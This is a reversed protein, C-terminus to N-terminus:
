ACRRRVDRAHNAPVRMKAVARLRGNNAREGRALFVIERHGAIAAVAVREHEAGRRAFHHRFDIAALVTQALTEAAGHMEGVWFM